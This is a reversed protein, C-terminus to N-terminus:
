YWTWLPNLLSFRPLPNYCGGERTLRTVFFLKTLRPNNEMYIMNDVIFEELFYDYDYNNNWKPRNGVVSLDGSQDLSFISPLYITLLCLCVLPSEFGCCKHTWCKKGISWAQEWELCETKNHQLCDTKWRKTYIFDMRLFGLADCSSANHEYAM